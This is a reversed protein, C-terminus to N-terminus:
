WFRMMEAVWHARSDSDNARSVQNGSYAFRHRLWSRLKPIRRLRSRRVLTRPWHPKWDLTARMEELSREAEKGYETKAASRQGDRTRFAALPVLTGWSDAQLFFRAWLDFDGALTFETRIRAGTREWLGKRWFTAEQQIWAFAEQNLTPLYQGDLFAERSIGPIHNVYVLLGTYDMICPTLTTLWEIEPLESMIGAVTAFTWPFYADDSNLWALIDGTAHQLGKNIASYHGGDSESVWYALKKEYRKIIEVSGDTSGGDIIIYELNPYGQELVSRITTELFEGQNFSPTVITIRPANQTM